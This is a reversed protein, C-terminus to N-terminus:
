GLRARTGAQEWSELAVPNLSFRVMTAALSPCSRLTQGERSFLKWSPLLSLEGRAVCFTGKQFVACLLLQLVVLSFCFHWHPRRRVVLGQTIFLVLGWAKAWPSCPLFVCNAGAAVMCPEVGAGTISFHGLRLEVPVSTPCTTRLLAPASGHLLQAPQQPRIRASGAGPHSGCVWHM